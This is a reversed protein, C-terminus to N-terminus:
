LVKIQFDLFALAPCLWKEPFILIESLAENGVIQL